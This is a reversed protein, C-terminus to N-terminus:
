GVQFARMSVWGHQFGEHIFRIPDEKRQLGIVYIMPLYHDLTPAAYSAEKGLKLYDILAGHERFGLM